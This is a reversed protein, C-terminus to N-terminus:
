WGRTALFCTFVFATCLPLFLAYHEPHSDTSCVFRLLPAILVFPVRFDRTFTSGRQAFRFRLLSRTLAVGRNNSIPLCISAAVSLAFGWIIAEDYISLNGLLLLLPSGLAFGIMCANGDLERARRFRSSRLATGVLGAFAFLAILGACFGSFRSWKGHGSSLDIKASRSAARAVAL